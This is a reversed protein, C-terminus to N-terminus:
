EDGESSARGSGYAPRMRDPRPDNQERRRYAAPSRGARVLDIWDSVEDETAPRDGIDETAM